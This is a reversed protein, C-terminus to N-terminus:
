APKTAESFGLVGGYFSRGQAEGGAPIAVQVHDLGAVWEARCAAAERSSRGVAFVRRYTLM